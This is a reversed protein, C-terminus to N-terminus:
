KVATSAKINSSMRLFSSVFNFRMASSAEGMGMLILGEPGHTQGMHGEKSALTFSEERERGKEHGGM